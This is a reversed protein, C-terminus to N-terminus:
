PNCCCRTWGNLRTVKDLELYNNRAMISNKKKLANKFPKFYTIGLKDIACTVYTFTLDGHGIWTRNSTLHKFLSMHGMGM